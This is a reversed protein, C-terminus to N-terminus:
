SREMTNPTSTKRELAVLRRVTIELLKLAIEPFRLLCARFRRYDLSLLCAEDAARVTTTRVNDYFMAYEGFLDGPHLTNAPGTCHPVFVHLAGSAVVFVEHAVEGAEFLTEGPALLEVRAIEALL